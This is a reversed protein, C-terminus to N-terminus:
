GVPPRYHELICRYVERLSALAEARGSMGHADAVAKWGRRQLVKELLLKRQAKTLFSGASLVPGALRWLAPLCVEYGRLTEVFSRVDHWDQDTLRAEPFPLLPFVRVALAAEVDALPEGLLLPLQGALHTQVAAFLTEGDQTLPQMVMVSHTGSSAERTLGVRVPLLGGGQWFDLLKETAGFSAGLYDAGSQQAQQRVHQLLKSGLRRRQLAPHVAIRVVRDARLVPAEAFGAHVALSQPMLHGHARRRGEYIAQALEPLLGGERAVLATAVVHKGYRLICIRLNPGDLLYRLDDPSTRYHALVLLGFLEVLMTEDQLLVDRDMQEFVCHQPTAEAM